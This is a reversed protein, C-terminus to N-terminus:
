LSFYNKINVLKVIYKRNHFYYPLYDMLHKIIFKPRFIIQRYFSRHLKKLRDFSIQSLNDSLGGYHYINEKDLNVLQDNYKFFAISGLYPTFFVVQILNPKINKALLLSQKVNEETETPSGIIFMADTKIKLKRCYLFIQKTKKIWKSGSEAKQLLEIIRPSGSEIGFRILECGAKKMKKLLDWDLEDVRAQCIWKIKLGSNILRHCVQNVHKTSATFSDDEFSIINAGLDILYNIEAIVNEASRLRIKSGYSERLIQTCFICKHPCGRSSLLSGWVVKKKSKVPYPYYYNKLEGQKYYPFPLSDLDGVLNLNNKELNNNKRNLIFEGVAKESEGRFWLDVENTKEERYSPYHGAAIIMAKTIKRINKIIKKFNNYELFNFQIVIFNPSYKKIIQVLNNLTNDKLKLDCFFTPYNAKELIAQIYKLSWPVCCSRPHSSEKELDSEPRILIAKKNKM